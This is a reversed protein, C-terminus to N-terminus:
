HCKIKIFVEALDPRNNPDEQLMKTSVHKLINVKIQESLQLFIYGVSYIDTKVSAKSGPVNRLEYALHIHQRNYRKQKESGVPINYIAPDEILTCKGFDINKVDQEDRILINKCHM